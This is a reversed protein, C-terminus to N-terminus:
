FDDLFDMDDDFESKRKKPSSEQESKEANTVQFLKTDKIYSGFAESSLKSKNDLITAMENLDDLDIHHGPLSKLNAPAKGFILVIPDELECMELEKKVMKIYSGPVTISSGFSNKKKPPAITIVPYLKGDKEYMKDIEIGNHDKDSLMFDFANLFREAIKEPNFIQFNALIEVFPTALIMGDTGEGSLAKQLEKVKMYHLNDCFPKHFREELKKVTSKEFFPFQVMGLETAVRGKIILEDMNLDGINFSNADTSSGLKHIMPNNCGVKLDNPIETYTARQSLLFLSFGFSRGTRAIQLLKWAITSQDDKKNLFDLEPSNIFNKL